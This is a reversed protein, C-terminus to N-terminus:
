KPTCILSLSLHTEADRTRPEVKTVVSPGKHDCCVSNTGFSAPGDRKKKKKELEREREEDTQGRM